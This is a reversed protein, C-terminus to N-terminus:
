TVTKAGCRLYLFVPCGPEKLKVDAGAARLPATWSTECTLPESAEAFGVPLGGGAFRKLTAIARVSPVSGILRALSAMLESGFMLSGMYVVTVKALLGDPTGWLTPEACNECLFHVRAALESADPSEDLLAEAREHRTPAMEVGFSAQVNYERAAQVTARGLGSGLDVFTDSEGLQVRAALTRFGLPTIEGYLASREGGVAEIADDEDQTTCRGDSAAQM